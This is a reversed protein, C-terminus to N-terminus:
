ATVLHFLRVSGSTTTALVFANVRMPNSYSFQAPTVVVSNATPSSLTPGQSSSTPASPNPVVQFNSITSGDDPVACLTFIGGEMIKQSQPSNNLSNVTWKINASM